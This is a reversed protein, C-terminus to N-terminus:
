ATKILQGQKAEWVETKVVKMDKEHEAKIEKPTPGTGDDRHVYEWFEIVKKIINDDEDRTVTETRRELKVERGTGEKGIVQREDEHWGPVPAFRDVLWQVKDGWKNQMYRIYEDKPIMECRYKSGGVNTGFIHGCVVDSRLIVKGPREDNLWVKCTWEPGDWGYKGLSEDYGGLAWYLETPVMWACGTICMNEEVPKHKQKEKETWWKETYENNLYVYRYDGGEYDWTKPNLGRIICHVLNNKHCSEKMKVDWGHSMSCHADLIFLYEGNAMRAAENISVRRGKVTDHNIVIDAITEDLPEGGDNIVIVEIPDFAHNRVSRITWKLHPDNIAPIIVSTMSM